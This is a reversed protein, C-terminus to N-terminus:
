ERWDKYRLHGPEHGMRAHRETIREALWECWENFKSNSTEKRYNESWAKARSWFVLTVGGILDDVAELPIIRRFVMYGITELRIGFEFVAQEIEKGMRVIDEPKADQPLKGILDLAHTWIASQTTQIVTIAAQDHRARNAARVQLGTFILAGVIAITSILNLLSALDLHM